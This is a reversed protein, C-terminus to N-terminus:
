WIAVLCILAFPVAALCFYLWTRYGEADKPRRFMHWLVWVCFVLGLALRIMDGPTEYVNWLHESQPVSVRAAMVVLTLIFATRLALAAIKLRLSVDPPTSLADSHHGAGPSESLNAPM